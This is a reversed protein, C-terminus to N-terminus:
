PYNEKHWKALFFAGVGLIVIVLLVVWINGEKEEELETNLEEEANEEDVEELEATTDETETVEAVTSTSMGEAVAFYSFGTASASYYAYDDDSSSHTTELQEWDEADDALHFLAVESASLSNESLWDLSVRFEIEVNSLVDNTLTSSTQAYIYSEVIVDLENVSSPLDEAEKTQIKLWPGYIDEEVDIAVMTIAIKDNDIELEASEGEYISTWIEKHSTSTTSSVGASSGGAGSGGSSSSSSSSSSAATVVVTFASSNGVNGAPDTCNVEAVYTAPSLAVNAEIDVKTSSNFSSTNEGRNEGNLYLVCSAETAITDNFSFSIIPTSDTSSLSTNQVTVNPSDRDITFNISETANLNSNNDVAEVAFTQIGEAFNTLNISSIYAGGSLTANYQVIVETGATTRNSVNFVVTDIGVGGDTVTVSLSQNGSSVNDFIQPANFVSVDPNNNDVTLNTVNTSVVQETGSSNTVNVSLNYQGDKLFAATDITVNFTQNDTASTSVVTVNYLLEGTTFNLFVFTANTANSLNDSGVLTVNFLTSGSLNSNSSPEAVIVTEFGTAFVVTTLLASFVLMLIIMEKNIRM